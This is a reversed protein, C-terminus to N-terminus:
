YITFEVYRPVFAAAQQEGLPTIRLQTKRSVGVAPMSEGVTHLEEGKQKFTRVPEFTRQWSERERKRELRTPVSSRLTGSVLLAERVKRASIM